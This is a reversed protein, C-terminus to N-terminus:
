GAAPARSETLLRGRLAAGGSGAGSEADEFGDVTLSYRGSDSRQIFRKGKLFWLAAQLHERPCGLLDEMEQITLTPHEFDHLTKAYLLDLIARRKERGAGPGGAAAMEALVRRRAQRM